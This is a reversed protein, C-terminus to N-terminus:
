SAPTSFIQAVSFCFMALWPQVGAHSPCHARVIVVTLPVVTLPVVIVPVFTVPVIVVIVIMIMVVIVLM